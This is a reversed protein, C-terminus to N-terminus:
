TRKMRMSENIQKPPISKMISNMRSTTIGTDFGGREVSQRNTNTASPNMSSNLITTDTFIRMNEKLMQDRGFSMNM